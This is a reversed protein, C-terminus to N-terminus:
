YKIKKVNVGPMKDAMGFLPQLHTEQLIVQQQKLNM